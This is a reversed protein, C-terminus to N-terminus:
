DPLKAFSGISCDILLFSNHSSLASPPNYKLDIYDPNSSDSANNMSFGVFQLSNHSSLAMFVKEKGRYDVKNLLHHGELTCHDTARSDTYWLPNAVSEPIAIMTSMQGINAGSNRAANQGDNQLHFTQDFRHYWRSAIHGM